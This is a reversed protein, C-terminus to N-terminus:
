GTMPEVEWESEWLQWGGIREELERLKQWGAAVGGAVFVCILCRRWDRLAHGQAAPFMQCACLCM